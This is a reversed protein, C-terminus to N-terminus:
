MLPVGFLAISVTTAKAVSVLGNLSAYFFALSFLGPRRIHFFLHGNSPARSAADSVVAAAWPLFGAGAVTMAVTFRWAQRRNWVCLVLFETVIVLAAFYQTYLALLNIGTLWALLRTEHAETSNCLRVFVLLSTVTLLLLLSYMRLEETY